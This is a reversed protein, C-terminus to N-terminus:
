KDMLCMNMIFFVKLILFFFVILMTKVNSRVEHAKKPRPSFKTEWQSSQLKKESDYGYVWTEDGTIINKIFNIDASQNKLDQCITLRNEIHCEPM